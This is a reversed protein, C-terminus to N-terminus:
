EGRREKKDREMGGKMVKVRKNSTKSEKWEREGRREKKEERKQKKVKKGYSKEKSERKKENGKRWKQKREKGGGERKFTDSGRTQGIHIRVNSKWGWRKKLCCGITKEGAWTHSWTVHHHHTQHMKWPWRLFFFFFTTCKVATRWKFVHATCSYEWSCLKIEKFCLFRRCILLWTVNSGSMVRRMKDGTSPPKVQIRWFQM